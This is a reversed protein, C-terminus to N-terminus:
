MEKQIMEACDVNIINEYVARSKCFVFLLYSLNQFHQSDIIKMEFEFFAVKMFLLNCIELKYDEVFLNGHVRAFHLANNLSFRTNIKM